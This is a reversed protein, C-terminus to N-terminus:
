SPVRHVTRRGTRYGPLRRRVTQMGVRGRPNGRRRNRSRESRPRDVPPHLHHTHLGHQRAQGVAPISGAPGGLKCGQGAVKAVDVVVHV